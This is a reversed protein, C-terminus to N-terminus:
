IVMIFFRSAWFSAASPIFMCQSKLLTDHFAAIKEDIKVFLTSM